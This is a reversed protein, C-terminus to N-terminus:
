SIAVIPEHLDTRDVLASHIISLKILLDPLELSKQYQNLQLLFSKLFGPINEAMSKIWFCYASLFNDTFESKYIEYNILKM